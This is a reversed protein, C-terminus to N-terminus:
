RGSRGPLGKNTYMMDLILLAAGITIASDAVNFAPWHWHRYYCDIFDIVYGQLIRDSLNGLAGGLILAFGPPQWGARAPLRRLWIVIAVGIAAAIASLLWRQWGSAGSLFSFAAGTNHVLTLDLFPLVPVPTAYVLYHAALQKTVQDIVLVAASLWLWRLHGRPASSSVTGPAGNM